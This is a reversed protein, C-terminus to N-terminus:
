NLVIKCYCSSYHNLGDKEELPQSIERSTEGVSFGKFNHSNTDVLSARNEVRYQKLLIESNGLPWHVSPHHGKLGCIGDPVEGYNERITKDRRCKAQTQYGWM